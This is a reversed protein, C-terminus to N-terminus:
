KWEELDREIAYQFSKSVLFINQTAKLSEPFIVQAYIATDDFNGKGLIIQYKDGNNLILSIKHHSKDLGFEQIKEPTSPIELKNEAQNFLNILFNMAADNVTLKQPQTMLWVNKDTKEFNIKEQNVEIDINKIEKTDFTFIKEQKEEEKGIKSTLDFQQDKIERFFVFGTLGLALIVLSITTRNFKM